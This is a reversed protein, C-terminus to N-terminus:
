LRTKSGSVREVDLEDDVFSRRAKQFRAATNGFGYEDSGPVQFLGFLHCALFGCTLVALFGGAVCLFCFYRCL